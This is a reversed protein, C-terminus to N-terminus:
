LENNELKKLRESWISINQKLKSIEGLKRQKENELYESGKEYTWEVIQLDTYDLINLPLYNFENYNYDEYPVPDNNYYCLKKNELDLKFSYFEVFHEFNYCTNYSLYIDKGELEEQINYIIQTIEWIRKLDILM